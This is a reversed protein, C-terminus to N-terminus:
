ICFKVAQTLVRQIRKHRQVKGLKLIQVCKQIIPTIPKITSTPCNEIIIYYLTSMYYVDDDDEINAKNIKFVSDISKLLLDVLTMGFGPEKENFVAVRGKSIYNQFCGIMQEISNSGWDIDKPNEHKSLAESSEYLFAVNQPYGALMYNLLLYHKWLGTPIENLNYLLEALLEVAEETFSVGRPLLAFDFVPMLISSAKIYQSQDLGLELIKKSANLCEIAAKKAENQNDGEILANYEFFSASFKVLLDLAFPM